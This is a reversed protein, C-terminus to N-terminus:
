TGFFDYISLYADVDHLLCDDLSTYTQTNSLAPMERIFYAQHRTVLWSLSHVIALGNASSLLGALSYFRKWAM